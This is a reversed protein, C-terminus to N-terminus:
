ICSINLTFYLKTGKISTTHSAAAKLTGNQFLRCKWKRMHDTPKKHIILKSFCESPNDFRFRGGKLPTDDESSWEIHMGRNSCPLHGKYTNLFCHLELTGDAPTSSETVPSSFTRHLVTTMTELIRNSEGVLKSVNLFIFPFVQMWRGTAVPTCEPM